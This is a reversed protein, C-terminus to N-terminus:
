RGQYLITDGSPTRAIDSPRLRVSWRVAELPITVKVGASEVLLAELSALSLPAVVEFTTGRGPDTRVTVEGGLREGAERVVDLGIGRGAVETVVGSTSIGGRLLVQLVGESGLERM